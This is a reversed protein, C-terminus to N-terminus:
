IALEILKDLENYLESAKEFIKKYDDEALCKINFLADEVKDVEKRIKYLKEM